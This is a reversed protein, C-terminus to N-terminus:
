DCCITTIVDNIDRESLSDRPLALENDRISILEQLLNALGSSESDTANFVFSSIRRKNGNAPGRLINYLRCGYRRACYMINSGLASRGATCFVSHSAVFRILGSKHYVCSRTFNLIRLCIEDFLPLCNSIAHLLYNHTRPPLDWIRRLGKRWATCLSEITMNDLRWIECGYYSTCYSRFLKLLVSSKLMRFYSLVNNVQGIFDNRRIMIDADDNLTSTILHGLHSFSSVMEIPKNDICFSYVDNHVRSGPPRVILLKSKSANFEICYEQAYEGCIRLLQRTASATPAILVIDDAYALAGVFHAGFYCGVGSNRLRRLLNDINICFLVPSLVAGQIVGNEALFYDSLVGHWGVRVFNNTYLNVLLRIIQAPIDRELLLRFLKCYHLRDFAKSADLFTCFVSSHHSVYYQISEKLVMTCLNTSHNAKFGFQLDCSSLKDYYRELIINDFLKGFISSLAIGRYNASDSLNSNHGKPIPVITCYLLNDSCFGHVVLASFLLAIHMFYDDGANIMHDSSLGSSGDNKGAKLRTVAEKIQHVSFVCDENFTANAIVSQLDNELCQMDQKDYPVSTYLERYKTAFLKAISDDDTQGDVTPSSGTKRGRLRKIESWFNRSDSQLIASAIRERVIRDEDKKVSRIAYHYAARTRRMSDAVAGTKPRDCDLWLRHWFLAKDRVPQVFESWGATRGSDHKSGTRPITANAANKSADTIARAYVNIADFHSKNQCSLDTCLLADHPLNIQRLIGSLTDRYSNIDSASAKVWSSRPAHKRVRFGTLKTDLTLQLAIPEHDSTNDVDHIVYACDVCDKYLVDSLLFHDLINFRSSNFEYIYDINCNSHQIIPTLCNSECFSNLIATHLRNRSFDVNFDGGIIAHCDPNDQVLCEINSLQDSFDLSTDANDEYPM